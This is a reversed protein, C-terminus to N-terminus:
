IFMPKLYTKIYTKLIELELLSLAYILKYQSQKDEVLEIAHKNIGTNKPFEM